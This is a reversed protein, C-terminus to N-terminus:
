YILCAAKSTGPPDGGDVGEIGTETTRIVSRVVRGRSRKAARRATSVSKARWEFEVHARMTFAVGEPPASFAFTWGAQRRAYQASGAYVWPSVGLGSVATWGQRGRSWYEATFRMWMRQDAGNGPMSARIGMSDPLRATDCINVTAWLGPNDAARAIGMSPGTTLAQPQSLEIDPIEAASDQALAGSPLALAGACALM